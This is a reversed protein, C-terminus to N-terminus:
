VWLYIYLSHITCSVFRAKSFVFFCFVFYITSLMLLVQRREICGFGAGIWEYFHHLVDVEIEVEIEVRFGFGFRDM